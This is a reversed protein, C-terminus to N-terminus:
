DEAVVLLIFFEFIDTYGPHKLLKDLFVIKLIVTDMMQCLGNNNINSHPCGSSLNQIDRIPKRELVCLIVSTIYNLTCRVDNKFFFRYIYGLFVCISNPVVEQSLSYTAMFFLTREVPDKPKLFQDWTAFNQKM